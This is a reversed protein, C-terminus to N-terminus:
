MKELKLWVRVLESSGWAQADCGKPTHPADGDLIEPIYGAAGKRLLMISSGLWSRATEIGKIGDKKEEKGSKKRERNQGFVEAWAECFVPFPWTWATGNHYAPKRRTDEDGQYIGSYPHYPDKLLVSGEANDSGGTEMNKYIYLPVSVERDALSRIAGPVLLEMCSELTKISMQEDQAIEVSLLGLTILFIQNPRLADDPVANLASKRTNCHLCDSFFGDKKRYFLEIVNKRVDLAMK